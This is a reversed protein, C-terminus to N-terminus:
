STLLKILLQWRSVRDMKVIILRKIYALLFNFGIWSRVEICLLFDMIFLDNISNFDM